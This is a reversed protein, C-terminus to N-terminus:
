PKHSESNHYNKANKVSLWGRASTYMYENGGYTLMLKYTPTNPVVINKCM